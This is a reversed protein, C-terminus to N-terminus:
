GALLRNVRQAASFGAGIAGDIFGRWGEGFDGVGLIVRGHDQLTAEYSRTIAGPRFNAYTGLAYPDAHWAYGTAAIVRTGPLVQDMARQVAEDDNINLASAQAGFGVLMTRAGPTSYTMLLGIPSPSPALCMLNGQNGEVEFYFKQGVSAHRERSLALLGPPLAPEYDITALVNMPLALVASRARLEEGSGIRVTVGSADQAIRKVPTGLRVEAGGDRVIRDVLAATGDKLHYRGTSDFMATMSWGPLAYWRMMENYSTQALPASSLTEILGTVADRQIGNTKIQGLRDAGTMADRKLVESWRFRLDYPREMVARAEGFYAEVAATVGGWQAADLEVGRGGSRVVMRDPAAGPTEEVALGYKMTEAWVFPQTWHIWTGGLEIAHGSFRSSFTRGGLRNKAELLVTRLGAHRCERAATVGAFGGGVVIVDYDKTAGAHVAPAALAGAALVAPAARLLDRRSVPSPCM